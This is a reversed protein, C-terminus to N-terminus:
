VEEITLLSQTAGRVFVVELFEQLSKLAIWRDCGFNHGQQPTIRTM